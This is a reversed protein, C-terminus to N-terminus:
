SSALHTLEDRCMKIQGPDTLRALAKKLHVVAKESQNLYRSYLIGLMLEVQESYQYSSYHALFNEYAQAAASWNSSSMLHNAIDLLQQRPLIQASDVQMLDLYAQSASAINASDIFASIRARMNLINQELETPQKKVERSSVPKTARGAYPDYGSNVSDRYTRRRNWQKIMSWLDLGTPSIMKTSLLLVSVLIGFGYGALHADYAVNPTLRALVNDIIILKLAIFYLASIEFTTVIFFFILLTIETQPFLVLFAGTVAAVAGSAGLIPTGTGANILNHGLAAFVAGGLYFCIYGVNGLKDNVNNGFLYLFFMNGIIHWANAHLFAYTIFQWIEPHAPWLMFDNVVPKLQNTQFSYTLLFVIANAVIFFYNAYPTRRTTLNTRIPLIM